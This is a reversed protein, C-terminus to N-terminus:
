PEKKDKKHLLYVGHLCCVTHTPKKAQGLKSNQGAHWEGFFM